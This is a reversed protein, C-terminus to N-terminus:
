KILVLKTSSVAKGAKMVCYYVGSSLARGHSDLGDFMTSYRGAASHNSQFSRVLQGRTNYISLDVAAPSKLEYVLSTQPNFPNPFAPLLRTTLPIVPLSPNDDPDTLAISIPGHYTMAGDLDVSQLWYYYTNGVEAELDTFAYDTANSSNAAPLLTNIREASGLSSQTNRYIYYGSLNTESQTTWRLNVYCDATPIATFSSLEVPLTGGGTGGDGAFEIDGAGKAFTLDALNVRYLFNPLSYVDKDFGPVAVWNGNNYRYWLQLPQVPLQIDIYQGSTLVGPVSFNFGWYAGLDGPTPFSGGVMAPNTSYTTAIDTFAAESGSPIFGIQIAAGGVNSLEYPVNPAAPPVTNEGYTNPMFLLTFNDASAVIESNGFSDTAKLRVRVINSALSPVVWSYNGDNATGPEISSYSSGGNLSYELRIPLAGFNTDTATWGITKSNGAYWTEGGNPSLLTLGPDATDLTSNVASITVNTVANIGTLLCILAILM